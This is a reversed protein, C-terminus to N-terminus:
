EFTPKKYKIIIQTRQLETSNFKTLCLTQNKKILYHDQIFLNELNGDHMSSISEKCERPSAHILQFWKFKVNQSLLYKEKLFEWYHLKRDSDFLKGVFNIRNKPFNSFIVSKKTWNFTKTLGYFNLAISTPLSPPSSLYKSWRYIIEQYYKPFITLSFNRLDLNSHFKLIKGFHIEIM